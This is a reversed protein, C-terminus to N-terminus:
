ATTPRREPARGAGAGQSDGGSPPSGGPTPLQLPKRERPGNDLPSKEGESGFAGHSAGENDGGGGVLSSLMDEAGPVQPEDDAAEIMDQTINTWIGTVRSSQRLEKLATQRGVLGGEYAAQVADGTSKSVSSKDVDTLKWLSKFKVAFDPPLQVGISRAGLKYILTTGHLINKEQQQNIGDYYMRLDSEGTSNLGAPSQGFMRILPIQLAGSIQQGFQILADGLGSFATHSQMELEDEGDIMTLGELTQFRRMTDAYQALGNMAQGGASVIDRLGKIKLTRLYAKYVLQGAGTTASDFMVMRDYLRELVSIGWLNEMLRQNYPLELGVHRFAIRTHHVVAGRLAPANYSVRYYSPLGLHPGLDTVLDELTPEVMWRDLVLLGKYQGQGVTELRLPTRMDQGDVLVVGLCGGYLRGWRIVENVSPWTNLGTMTRDLRTQDEPRMESVYDIGERTMDDAVTDVAIGGIWSGRHIWELLTRNRTIPNFGYSGTSLANDGGIGLRHQLNQFSDTTVAGVLPKGDGGVHNKRITDLTRKEERILDNRASKVSVKRAM